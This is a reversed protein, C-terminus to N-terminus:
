LFLVPCVPLFASVGDDEWVSAAPWLAWTQQGQYSLMPRDAM